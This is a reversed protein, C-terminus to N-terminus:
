SSAPLPRPADPVCVPFFVRFTSGEDRSSKVQIFGRHGRVIGLVAPLGLGRGTFKTSFFPEFIKDFQDPAIGAGTDAVEIYVYSGPPPTERPWLHASFPIADVVGASISVTGPRGELSESANLILNMIVQRIQGADAKIVPLSRPLRLDLLSKESVDNKLLQVAEQIVPGADLTQIVSHGNGSFALMQQVLEAARKTAVVAALIDERAPSDKPLSLLALDINGMIASLLNNFDHAIGGALIGLSELKKAEQMGREYYLRDQEAKRRETVDMAAFIFGLRPRSPDIPTGRLWWSQTQGNKHRMAAELENPGAQHPPEFFVKGAREFEEPSEYLIRMSQGLLEEASYGSMQSLMDNVEAFKQDICVGFGVPAVKLISQVREQSRQLNALATRLEATRAHVRFSLIANFAALALMIALGLLIYVGWQRVIERMLFPSGMWKRDIARYERRSIKNFGDQVQNLLDPRNKCVARHFEGTYLVMSENFDNAIGNKYMFYIAAPQDVSFVKIEQNKAALIIAEYSPYEKLSDIGHTTLYQIVADGTKVGITFGKLSPTDGIGLLTKHTYIPVKIQAYPPTFDYIQAREETLFITDIVDAQGEGMVRQAEGWDMAQLKVPIGTKREWLAWQDPLIGKLNGDADRFIYPPYNDDSVVILPAHRRPKDQARAKQPAGLLSTAVLALGALGACRACRRFMAPPKKM